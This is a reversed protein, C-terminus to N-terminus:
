ACSFDQGYFINERDHLATELYRDAENLIALEGTAGYRTVRWWV